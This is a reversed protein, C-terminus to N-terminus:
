HRRHRLLRFAGCASAIPATWAGTRGGTWPGRALSDASDHTIEGARATHGRRACSLCASLCFSLTTQLVVASGLRIRTSSDSKRRVRGLGAHTNSALEEFTRWSADHHSGSRVAHRFFDTGLSAFARSAAGGRGPRARRAPCFRKLDPDRLYRSARRPRKASPCGLFKWGRSVEVGIGNEVREILEVRM